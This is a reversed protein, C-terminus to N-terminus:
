YGFFFKWNRIDLKLKSDYSRFGPHTTRVRNTYDVSLKYPRLQDTGLSFSLAQITKAGRRPRYALRFDYAVPQGPLPQFLQQRGQIFFGKGMTKVFSLSAQEFANYDVDLYDLHFSKALDNTVGRFFSPLVLGFGANKLDNEISTNVGSQLLSTLLDTRGLLQLIRDQSLDGPTSVATLTLGDRVDTPLSGSTSAPGAQSLLDGKIDISIDYREPTIGNKLATLSTQGHLDAILQAQNNFASNDYRLTITGEPTLKINGGPLLLDGRDVTLLADAKLNSLTGKVSGSGKAFVSTLSTKISMPNNAFFRIDFEPEISSQDTGGKSPLLSPIVTRIDEFFIDGTLKPKALTGAIKVPKGTETFITGQAFTNQAFSQFLGLNNFALSGDQITRNNWATIDGGDIRFDDIPIKADLAVTGLNPDKEDVKSFYYNSATSLKTHLMYGSKPDNEITASAIVNRLVTDIPKGIMPQPNTVKLSDINFDLGGAFTRQAYTGGVEFGGKLHAGKEGLSLGDGKFFETVDREGDLKASVLLPAEKDM